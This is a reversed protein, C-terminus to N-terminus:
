LVDVPRGILDYGRAAVVEIDVFDGPRYASPDCETLYVCADIDPAQTSLRGKLVLEHDSAPGDVMLRAREGVRSRQRRTVLRKQLSMVRERRARKDVAAVDDDLAHASTGEEHSYTFVGVHDFPHDGVFACLEDVDADSEGPFGV